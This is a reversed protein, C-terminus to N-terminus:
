PQVGLRQRYGLALRKTAEQMTLPHRTGNEWSQLWWGGNDCCIDHDRTLTDPASFTAIRNASVPQALEPRLLRAKAGDELIVVKIREPGTFHSQIALRLNELGQDSLQGPHEIVLVDGDRIPEPQREADVKVTAAAGVGLVSGLFLRRSIM